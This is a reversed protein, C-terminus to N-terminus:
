IPMNRFYIMLQKLNNYEYKYPIGSYTPPRNHWFYRRVICNRKYDYSKTETLNHLKDYFIESCIKNNILIIM